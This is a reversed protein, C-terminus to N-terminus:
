PILTAVRVIQGETLGSTIEILAGDTLGTQVETEVLNTGNQVTVISKGASNVTVAAIPVVLVNQVEGTKVGVKKVITSPKVLGKSNDFTITATYTSGKEGAKPPSVKVSSVKGEIQGIGKETPTFVVKTDKVVKDKDEAPVTTLVRIQDYDIITAVPAKPDTGIDSGVTADLTVVTGSIPARIITMKAGSRAENVFQMAAEVSQREAQVSQEFDSKAAAYSAEADKRAQTASEVDATTGERQDRIAAAEAARAESLMRSAEVMPGQNQAKAASYDRQATALNAQAQQLMAKAEPLALRMITEGKNVHKGVATLVESVPLKFPSHVIVTATPPVVVQADYFKYGVLNQRSVAATSAGEKPQVPGPPQCGGIFITSLACLAGVALMSSRVTM